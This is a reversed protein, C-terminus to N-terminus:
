GGGDGFRETRVRLGDEDVWRAEEGGVPLFAGEEGDEVEEAGVLRRLPNQLRAMAEAIAEKAPAGPM